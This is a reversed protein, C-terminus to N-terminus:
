ATTRKTASLGPGQSNWQWTSRCMALPMLMVNLTLGAAPPPPPGPPLAAAAAEEDGLPPKPSDSGAFRSHSGGRAAARASRGTGLDRVAAGRAAAAAAEGEDGPARGAGDRRNSAAPPASRPGISISGSSIYCFHTNHLQKKERHRM